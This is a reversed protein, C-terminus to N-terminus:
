PTRIHSLRVRIVLDGILVVDIVSTYLANWTYLRAVTNAM